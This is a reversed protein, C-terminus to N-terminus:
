LEEVLSWNGVSKGITMEKFSVQAIMCSKGMEQPLKTITAEKLYNLVMM